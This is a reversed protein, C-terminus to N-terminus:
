TQKRKGENGKLATQLLNITSKFVSVRNFHTNKPTKKM